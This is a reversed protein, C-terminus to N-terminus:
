TTINQWLRWKIVIDLIDKQLKPGIKLIDNLSRKNTTKASADFVVRLKITLSDKRIVAQHPLYYKGSYPITKQMHGKAEYDRMFEIYAEKTENDMRKESNLFRAMAQKRSDGLEKNDEFPLRVVLRNEETTTTTEEFLKICYDESSIPTVEPIEEMEWFKEINTTVAAYRKKCQEPVSVVGSLIWGLKTKQGVITGVKRACSNEDLLSHILDSGIVLDIRDSKNFNPDALCYNQWKSKDYDFSTSPQMGVLSKPLVLANVEFVEDGKTQPRIKLNVTAKSTAVITDCYGILDTKPAKKKPLRLIQVAEESISTDQSGQDILARM